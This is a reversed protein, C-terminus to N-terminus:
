SQIFNMVSLGKMCINFQTIHKQKAPASDTSSTTGLTLDNATIPYDYLELQM